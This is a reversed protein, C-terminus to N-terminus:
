SPNKGLAADIMACYATRYLRGDGATVLSAAFAKPEAAIRDAFPKNQQSGALLGSILMADTPERLSQIAALALERWIRALPQHILEARKKEMADAARIVAPLETESGEAM